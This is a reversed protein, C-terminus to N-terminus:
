TLIGARDGKAINCRLHATVLNSREHTGGKALPVVHDLSAFIPHPYTVSRSVPIDPYLCGPIQCRWEDREFIELPPVDEIFADLERARRRHSALSSITAAKEPNTQRWQRNHEPNADRWRRQKKSIKEPNTEAYRRVREIVKERNAEYYEQNRQLVNERNAEYRQRSRQSIEECNAEYYRRARDAHAAKCDECRCGRNSYGDVTGHRIPSDRKRDPGGGRPDGHV